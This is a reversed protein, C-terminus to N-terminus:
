FRKLYKKFLRSDKFLVLLELLRRAPGTPVRKGQDWKSVTNKHTNCLEAMQSQSLGLKARIQKTNLNQMTELYFIGKSKTNLRKM